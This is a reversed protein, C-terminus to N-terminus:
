REITDVSVEFPLAGGEAMQDISVDRGATEIAAGVGFLLEELPDSVAHFFPDGDPGVGVGFRHNDRHAVPDLRLQLLPELLQGRLVQELRAEKSPTPHVQHGVDLLTLGM